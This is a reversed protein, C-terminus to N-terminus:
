TKDSGFIGEMNRPPAPEKKEGEREGSMIQHFLKKSEPSTLAGKVGRVLFRVLGVEEEVSPYDGNKTEMKQLAEFDGTSFKFIRYMNSVVEPHNDLNVVSGKAVHGAKQLEETFKKMWTTAQGNQDAMLLFIGQRM